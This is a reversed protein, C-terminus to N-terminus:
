LRRVATVRLLRRDARGPHHRCLAHGHACDLRVNLKESSLAKYEQVALAPAKIKGAGELIEADVMSGIVKTVRVRGVPTGDSGLVRYISGPQEAYSNPRLEVLDGRLATVRVYSRSSVGSSTNSFVPRAGAGEVQPTQGRNIKKVDRLVGAMLEEYTTEDDAKKLAQVLNYTFVGSWFRTIGEYFTTSASTESPACSAIMTFQRGGEEPAAGADSLEGWTFLEMGDPESEEFSITRTGGEPEPYGLDIVRHELPRPTAREEFSLNRTGTGAHCADLVVTIDTAQIRLFLRNLEDDTIEAGPVGPRVDAPCLVEDRGDEEDGNRDPVQSGHGSYYIFVTDGEKAKSGVDELASIINAKTAHADVLTRIKTAEFGYKTLLLERFMQVDNPPGKLDLRTGHIYDGVGILLAWKDAAQATSSLLTMSCVALLVRRM